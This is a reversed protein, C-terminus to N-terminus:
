MVNNPMVQSEEEDKTRTVESLLKGAAPLLMEPDIPEAGLIPEGEILDSPSALLPLRGLSILMIGAFSALCDLSKSGDGEKKSMQGRSVLKNTTERPM